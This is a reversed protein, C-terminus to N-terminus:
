QAPEEGLPRAPDLRHTEMPVTESIRDHFVALRGDPLTLLMDVFQHNWLVHDPSYWWQAHVTHGATEDLGQITVLLSAVRSPLSEETVGYMPSNEDIRHLLTMTLGFTPTASRLLPLDVLRRLTHGEQTTEDCFASLNLTAGVLRNGRANAIRLALHPAGDRNQILIHESFRMRATPRSFKAFMLGTGVAVMLMGIFAEINALVHAYSTTPHLAGYGISSVTQVSFSFAELFSTPDEAAICDGGYLYLGAFAANILAWGLFLSSLTAWWPQNLFEHYADGAREWQRGKNVARIGQRTVVPRFPPPTAHATM